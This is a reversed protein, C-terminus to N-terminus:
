EEACWHVQNAFFTQQSGDRNQVVVAQALRYGEAQTGIVFVDEAHPFTVPAEDFPLIVNVNEPGAVLFGIRAYPYHNYAAWVGWGYGQEAAYFRPYLARGQIVTVGEDLGCIEELHIPLAAAITETTREPYRTRPLFELMPILAGLLAISTLLPLPRLLRTIRDTIPTLPQEDPTLSLGFLVRVFVALGVIAYWIIIWDVPLIFRSGSVRAIATSFSYALHIGLPFLGIWQWRRWMAAIGAGLFALNFVLLMWAGPPWDSQWREQFSWFPLSDVYERLHATDSAPIYGLWSLLHNALDFRLPLALLAAVENHLFHSSIFQAM